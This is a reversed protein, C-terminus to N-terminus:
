VGTLYFAAWWFPHRLDQGQGDLLGIQYFFDRATAQSVETSPKGDWIEKYYLRKERNTTNRMWQQAQRLAHVPEVGESQWLDYFRAMLMATSVDAVSWLSAAVGAFGAQLLASPLMVVEDPLNTGAIGTECASLTALRAGPLRLELLDRVTLPEDNAMYLGTQLPQQWSNSGHCSFHAVDVGTALTDLVAQRTAQAHHLTTAGAFHDVIAAVEAASNPLPSGSVPKPEDVALVRATAVTPLREQAHRLALASPAYRVAFDDLFYHRPPPTNSAAHRPRRLPSQAPLPDNAGDGARAPADVTWAAHLPLLALLGTPILTVTAPPAPLTHLAAALPGMVVDWLQHTTTELQAFWAQHTIANRQWLWAQYAGLWGGLQPQEAPGFLWERLQVETLDLWVPQVGDTHVIMALGGPETALLYAIAHDNTVVSHIEAFSPQPMFEPAVARLQEIAEQLDQRAAALLPSLTLFDRKSISLPKEPLQSENVLIRMTEVAETFHQWLPNSVGAPRERRLAISEALWRARNRDLTIVATDFMENNTNHLKSLAYTLATPVDGIERLEVQRAEPTAATTYLIENVALAEQLATVAQQWHQAAIYARGLNRQTNRRDM